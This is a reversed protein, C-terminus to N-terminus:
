SGGSPYVASKLDLYIFARLRSTYRRDWILVRWTRHSGTSWRMKYQEEGRLFDYERYGNRYGYDLVAPILMTGPSLRSFSPDYAKSYDWLADGCRFGLQFAIAHKGLEMLAAYLWGQPGLSNFLSHFVHPADAFLPPIPKGQVRKLKEVSIIKELLLPEAEPHEIIRIHLGESNMRDLRHQQNRLTRRVPRSFRGIIESAGGDLPLYPCRTDPLIRCTLNSMALVNELTSLTHGQDRMSRLDVLDWDGKRHELHSIIAAIHEPQHDGLLLDNYDAPSELFEIKRLVVGFKSVRRSILPSIAVSTDGNKVVLVMPSREQGACSETARQDWASFWEFTTFVNRHKANNSLTRWSTRLEQVAASTNVTEVNFTQM